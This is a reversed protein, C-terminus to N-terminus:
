STSVPSHTTIAASRISRVKRGGGSETAARGSAAPGAPGGLDGGVVVVHHHELVAERRQRPQGGALLRGGATSPSGNHGNAGPAPRQSTTHKVLSGSALKASASRRVPDAGDDLGPGVAGGLQRRQGADLLHEAELVAAALDADRQGMRVALDVGVRVQRRAGLRQDPLRACCRARVPRCGAPRRAPRRAASPGVRPGSRSRASSRMRARRRVSAAPPAGAGRVAVDGVERCQGVVFAGLQGVTYRSRSPRTSRNKSPTSASARCRPRAGPEPRRRGRGRVGAGAATRASASAPGSSTGPRIPTRRHPGPDVVGGGLPDGVPKPLDRRSRPM